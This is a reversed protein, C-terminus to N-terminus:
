PVAWFPQRSSPSATANTTVAVMRIGGGAGTARLLRDGM